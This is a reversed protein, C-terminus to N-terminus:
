ANDAEVEALSTQVLAHSLRFFENHADVAADYQGQLYQRADDTLPESPELVEEVAVRRAHLSRRYAAVLPSGEGLRLMLRESLRTCREDTKEYPNVLKEAEARDAGSAYPGLAAVARWLALFDSGHRGLADSADDLLTRLEELDRLDRDHQLQRSLRAREDSLQARQRKAEADLQQQLTARAEEIDREQRVRAANVTVLAVGLAGLPTVILTVIAVSNGSSRETAVPRCGAKLRDAESCGPPLAVRKDTQLIALVVVGAMAAVAVMAVAVAVWRPIALTTKV